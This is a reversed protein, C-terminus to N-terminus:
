VKIPIWSMLRVKMLTMFRFIATLAPPVYLQRIYLNTIIYEGRFFRDFTALEAAGGRRASYACM